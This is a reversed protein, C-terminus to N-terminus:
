NAGQLSMLNEDCHALRQAAAVSLEKKICGNARSSIWFMSIHQVSSFAIMKGAIYAIHLFSLSLFRLKNKLIDTIQFVTPLNLCHQLISDRPKGPDRFIWFLLTRSVLFRKSYPTKCGLLEVSRLDSDRFYISIYLVIEMLFLTRCCFFHLFSLM